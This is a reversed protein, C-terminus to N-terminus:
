ERYEATFAALLDNRTIIGVLRGESMVPYRRFASGLFARAAAVIDLDAELTAVERSMYEAVTGGLEQHYSAHLMARFCDKATLMGIIHGAEDTVPAGSIRRNVLLAAARTIEAEPALTVPDPTMYRAISPRHTM